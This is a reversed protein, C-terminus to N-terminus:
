LSFSNVTNSYASCLQILVAISIMKFICSQRSPFLQDRVCPNSEQMAAAKSTMLNSLPLELLSFSFTKVCTIPMCNQKSSRCKLHHLNPTVKSFWVLDYLNQSKNAWTSSTKRYETFSIILLALLIMGESRFEAAPNYNEWKYASRSGVTAM